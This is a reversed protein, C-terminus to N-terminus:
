IATSDRRTNGDKHAKITDKTSVDLKTLAELLVLKGQLQRLVLESEEVMLRHRNLQILDLLYEKLGAWAEKNNALPLLKKAQEKNM